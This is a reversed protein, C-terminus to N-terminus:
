QECVLHGLQLAGPHIDSGKHSHEDEGTQKPQQKQITPRKMDEVSLTKLRVGFSKYLANLLGIAHAKVMLENKFMPHARDPNPPVCTLNLFYGGDVLVLATGKSKRLASFGGASYQRLHLHKKVFHWHNSVKLGELKGM